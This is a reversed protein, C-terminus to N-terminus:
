ACGSRHPAYTLLGAHLVDLLWCGFLDHVETHRKPAGLGQQARDLDAKKGLKGLLRQVQFRKGFTKHQVRAARPVEKVREDSQAHQLSVAILVGVGCFGVKKEVPRLRGVDPADELHGVRPQIREPAREGLRQSGSLGLVFCFCPSFKKV